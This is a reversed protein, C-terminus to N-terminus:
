TSYRDFLALLDEIEQGSKGQDILNKLFETKLRKEELKLKKDELRLKKDALLVDEEHKRKELDLRSEMVLVERDKLAKEMDLREKTIALNAQSCEAYTSSFDAKKGSSPPNNESLLGLKRRAAKNKSDTLSLTLNDDDDETNYTCTSLRRPADDMVPQDQGSLDILDDAQSSDFIAVPRM